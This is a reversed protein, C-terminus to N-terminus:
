FLAKWSLWGPISDEILQYWFWRAASRKPNANYPIIHRSGKQYWYERRILSMNPSSPLQPLNVILLPDSNNAEYPTRKARKWKHIWTETFSKPAVHPFSCCAKLLQWSMWIWLLCMANNYWMCNKTLVENSNKLDVRAYLEQYRGVFYTVAWFSQADIPSNCSHVRNPFVSFCM